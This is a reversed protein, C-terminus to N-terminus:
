PNDDNHQGGVGMLYIYDDKGAVCRNLAEDITLLASEPTAGDNADDGTDTVYFVRGDGIWTTVLERSDWTTDLIRVAKKEKRKFVPPAFPLAALFKIFDRRNM